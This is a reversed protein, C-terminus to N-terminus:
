NDDFVGARIFVPLAGGEIKDEFAAAVQNFEVAKVLASDVEEPTNLFWHKLTIHHDGQADGIFKGARYDASETGRDKSNYCIQIKAQGLAM